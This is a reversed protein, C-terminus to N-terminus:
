HNVHEAELRRKSRAWAIARSRIWQVMTPSVATAPPLGQYSRPPWGGFKDKYKAACWGPKYGHEIGYAKLECYFQKRERETWERAPVGKAMIMSGDRKIEMLEGDREIIESQLKTVLGCNPCKRQYNPLYLASCGKCEVPLKERKEQRANKAKPEGSDLHDYSAEVDTVFGLRLHNDSHDLIIAEEKGEALRLARGIIQTFKMASRTPRALILCRVDWDTGITLTDINVVIQYTGDHFMKRIMRRVDLPTDADQYGCKIGAYNFREQLSLAHAKDVAFCLTKGMGWRKQYTHIIDACLGNEQMAETLDGTHYDDAVTRVKTLDPHGVSFVRFPALFHLDILEQLTSVRLLTQFYKGLGRAWPTASMGIFPVHQWEPDTIWRKHAQYLVHAEDFIVVDAGPVVGRRDITQISCIQVPNAWNTAIHNAQIVGIDRVGEAYFMEYAQDVLGIAPVVFAVRKQKSRSGFAIETALRTKGSGTPSALMIRNVGQAVTARLNAMAAKQYPRLETM